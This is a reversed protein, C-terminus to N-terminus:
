QEPTEPPQELAAKSEKQQRLIEADHVAIRERYFETQAAKIYPILFIFGVGCTLVSLFAYGIFSLELWFLKEKYGRMLMKSTQVADPYSLEPKQALLYPALAYRLVAVIGPVVLLVSWLLTQASMLLRLMVAKGWFMQCSFLTKVGCPEDKYQLLYYRNHGLEVMGGVIVSVVIYIEIILFLYRLESEIPTFGGSVIMNRLFFLKVQQMLFSFVTIGGLLLAILSVGISKAYRGRLSRRAIKLIQTNSNM